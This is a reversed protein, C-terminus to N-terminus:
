FIDSSSTRSCVEDSSLKKNSQRNQFKFISRSHELYVRSHPM